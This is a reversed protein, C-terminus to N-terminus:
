KAGPPIYGGSPPTLDLAGNVTPRDCYTIPGIVEASPRRGYVNTYTWPRTLSLKSEITTVVELERPNLLRWREVIHMDPDELSLGYTIENGPELGITDIVLTNGEWRGISEGGYSPFLQDAATHKSRNLWVPRVTGYGGYVIIYDSTAWADFGFVMQDPLGAPICKANRGPIVEGAADMREIEARRAEVEPTLPIYGKVPVAGKMQKNSRILSWVGVLAHVKAPTPAPPGSVTTAATPQGPSPGSVFAGGAPPAAPQAAAAASLSLTVLASIIKM